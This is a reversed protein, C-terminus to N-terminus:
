GYLMSPVLIQLIGECVAHAREHNLHERSCFPQATWSKERGGVHVSSDACEM